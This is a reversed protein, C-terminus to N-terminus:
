GRLRRKGTMSTMHLLVMLTLFMLSMGIIALLCTKNRISTFAYGRAPMVTEDRNEEIEEVDSLTDVEAGHEGSNLMWMAGKERMENVMTEQMEKM